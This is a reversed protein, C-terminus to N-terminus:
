GFADYLYFHHQPHSKYGNHQEFSCGGFGFVELLLRQLFYLVLACSRLFLELVKRGIKVIQLLLGLFLLLLGLFLLLLGLFVLPAGVKGILRM